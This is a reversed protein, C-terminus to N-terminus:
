TRNHGLIDRFRLQIKLMRADFNKRASDKLANFDPTFHRIKERRKSKDAFNRLKIYAGLPNLARRLCPVPLLVVKTCGSHCVPCDNPIWCDTEYYSPHVCTCLLTDKPNGLLNRPVSLEVEVVKSHPPQGGFDSMGHNLRRSASAGRHVM